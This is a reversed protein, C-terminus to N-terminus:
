YLVYTLVNDLMNEFVNIFPIYKYYSSFSILEDNIETESVIYGNENILDLRKNEFTIFSLNTQIIFFLISMLGYFPYLMYNYITFQISVHFIFLVIIKLNLINYLHLDIQVVEPPGNNNVKNNLKDHKNFLHQLYSVLNLFEGEPLEEIEIAFLIDNYIVSKPINILNINDNLINFMNSYVNFDFESQHKIIIEIIRKKYGNSCHACTNRSTM